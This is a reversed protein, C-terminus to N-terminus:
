RRRGVEFRSFPLRLYFCSVPDYFDWVTIGVCADVQLCAGTTNKYVESQSALNTSNEPELLRVDLETVAVDLGMDAFKKMNAIQEDLTPSRGVTFHSQLGIGDIKIGDDQLFKIINQRAADSKNGVREIGYDNYYLKAFPDAAAAAKFAIKIYDPGLVTLFTDNRYTGDDNLAENLM